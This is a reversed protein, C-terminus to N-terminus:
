NKKPNRRKMLLTQNYKVMFYEFITNTGELISHLVEKDDCLESENKLEDFTYEKGYVFVKYIKLENAFNKAILDKELSLLSKFQDRIVPFDFDYFRATLNTKLRKIYNVWEQETEYLNYVGKKEIIPTIESNEM